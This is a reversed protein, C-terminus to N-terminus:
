QTWGTTLDIAQVDSVTTAAEILESLVRENSFCTQVHTAVAAAIGAITAADIQIWGTTAKWDILVAPNLQSFSWAGTAKVPIADAM